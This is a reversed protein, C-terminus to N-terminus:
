YGWQLFLIKPNCHKRLDCFLGLPGCYARKLSLLPLITWYMHLSLNLTVKRKKQMFVYVLEHRQDGGLSTLLLDFGKSQHVVKMSGSECHHSADAKVAAQNGRSANSETFSYLGATTFVGLRAEWCLRQPPDCKDFQYKGRLSRHLFLFLPVLLFFLFLGCQLQLLCFM